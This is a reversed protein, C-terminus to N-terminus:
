PRGEDTFGYAAGRRDRKDRPVLFGTDKMRLPDFIRRKLVAGLPEGEIRAILFGLLDTACSYSMIAGPQGILPLQALRAIWDDPM